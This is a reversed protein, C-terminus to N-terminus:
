HWLGRCTTQYLCFCLWVFCSLVEWLSGVLCNNNCHFVKSIYQSCLVPLNSDKQSPSTTTTNAWYWSSMMLHFCKGRLQGITPPIWRDGTFEGCLPWHRPAKINGKIQTQIFPQSFLWSAPSKLHQWAWKSTVTIYIGLIISRDIFM